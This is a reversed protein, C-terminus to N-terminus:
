AVKKFDLWGTDPLLDVQTQNDEFRNEFGNISTQKSILLPQASSSKLSGEDINKNLFLKYIQCLSPPKARNLGIVDWDELDQSENEESFTVSTMKYDQELLYENILFNIANKEHPMVNKFNQNDSEKFSMVTDSNKIEIQDYHDTTSDESSNSHKNNLGASEVNTNLIKSSSDSSMFVFM